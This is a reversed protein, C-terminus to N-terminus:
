GHDRRIWRAWGLAETNCTWQRALAGNLIAYTKVCLGVLNGWHQQVNGNITFAVLVM